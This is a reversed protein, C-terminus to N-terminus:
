KNYKFLYDGDSLKKIFSYNKNKLYNILKVIKSTEVLIFKFKYNTFDVGELVKFEYGEVDLSFLDIIKPCNRKKLIENLTSVEVKLSSNNEIKSALNKNTINIYPKNYKKSVLCKNVFINKNNRNNKLEKFLEPIPEILIGSWNKYKEFFWTNSQNIGDNAGCEIYFGNEFNLYKLLKKDLNNVANFKRFSKLFTKIKNPILITIKKM